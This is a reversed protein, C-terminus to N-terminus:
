QQLSALFLRVPITGQGIYILPDGSVEFSHTSKCKKSLQRNTRAKLNFTMVIILFLDFWTDINHFLFDLCGHM